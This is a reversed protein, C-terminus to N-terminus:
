WRENKLWVNGDEASPPPPCATGALTRHLQQCTGSPTEGFHSNSLCLSLQPMLIAMSQFIVAPLRKLAPLCCSRGHVTPRACLISSPYRQEQLRMNLLCSVSRPYWHSWSRSASAMSATWDLTHVLSRLLAHIDPTHTPPPPPQPNAPTTGSLHCIPVTTGM